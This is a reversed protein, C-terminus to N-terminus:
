PEIWQITEAERYFSTVDWVHGDHISGLLVIRNVPPDEIPYASGRFFFWNGDSSFSFQGFCYIDWTCLESEPVSIEVIRHFLNGGEFIYIGPPPYQDAEMGQLVFVVRGDALIYPHIAGYEQKLSCLPLLRIIEWRDLDIEYFGEEGDVRAYYLIQKNSSWAFTSRGFLYTFSGPIRLRNGSVTDIVEVWSGEVEAREAHVFYRKDPSECPTNWLVDDFCPQRTKRPVPDSLKILSGTDSSLHFYEYEIVAVLSTIVSPLNNVDAIEMEYTEFNFDIHEVCEFGKPTATAVM